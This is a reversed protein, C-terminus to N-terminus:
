AARFRPRIQKLMAPIESAPKPRSFLYGQAQILRGRAPARAATRDRHRRGDDDHPPEASGCVARIIAACDNEKGLERIFSRDIKIKDFPFRRLYSLSSYGTGFDDMCIRVGAQAVPAAVHLPRPEGGAAGDRDARVRASPPSARHGLALMVSLALDRYTFQAASLNVAVTFAGALERRRPLGGCCGTASRVILGIEEAFPHVRPRCWVANRITGACCRRSAPVPGSRSISCPSIICSSSSPPSRRACISSSGARVQMQADMEPKFFRYTARGEDKARYIAMDANNLLQDPETGDSPALAIGISRLHRCSPRSTSRSAWRRSFRHPWESADARIVGQEAPHRIRRRRAAGGYRCGCVRQLRETVACLLADGVSHGLSDNVGKFHDLDLFMIALGDGRALAEEMRDRFFVRNPLGTLADHHAM